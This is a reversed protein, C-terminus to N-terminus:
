WLICHFTTYCTTAFFDSKEKVLLTNYLISNEDNGGSCNHKGPQPPTPYDTIVGNGRPTDLMHSPWLPLVTRSIAGVNVGPEKSFKKSFVYYETQNEIMGGCQFMVTSSIKIISSLSWNWINLLMVASTRAIRPALADAGYYQGWAWLFNWDWCWFTQIIGCTSHWHKM